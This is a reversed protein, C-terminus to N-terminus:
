QSGTIDAKYLKTKILKGKVDYYKWEGDKKPITTSREKSMHENGEADFSSANVFGIVQTYQGQVKIKGNLYYEKYEGFESGNKFNIEKWLIGKQTFFKCVGEQQRNIKTGEERTRLNKYLYKYNSIENGNEYLTEESMLRITDRFKFLGTEKDNNYQGTEVLFYKSGKYMRYRNYWGNKNGDKIQFVLSDREGGGHPEDNFYVGNGNNLIQTGNEFWMNLYKTKSNFPNKLATDLTELQKQGNRYWYTWLGTQTCTKSGNITECYMQGKWYIEGTLYYEIDPEITQASLNLSFAAIIIKFISKKM